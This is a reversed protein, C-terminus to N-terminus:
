PWVNRWFYCPTLFIYILELFFPVGIKKPGFITGFFLIPALFFTGFFTFFYSNCFFPCESEYKKPGLMTGFFLIPELFFSNM